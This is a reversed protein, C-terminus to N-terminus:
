ARAAARCNAGCGSVVTATVPVLPLDDITENTRWIQVADPM